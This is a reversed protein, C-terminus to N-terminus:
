RPTNLRQIQPGLVREFERLAPQLAREGATALFRRPAMNRTGLEVFRWYFPDTPSKAGRQGRSAPRVNVFVGMVDREHFRRKYARVRIANRLTGPKRYRTPTQLVPAQQQVARQVIRGGARLANMLARRRLKDPMGKLAALVDGLGNIRVTIPQDAPM